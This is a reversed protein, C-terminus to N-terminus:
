AGLSLVIYLGGLQPLSMSGTKESFHHMRQLDLQYSECVSLSMVLFWNSRSSQTESEIESKVADLNKNDPILVKM